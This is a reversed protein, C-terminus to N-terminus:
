STDGSFISDQQAKRTEEISDTGLLVNGVGLVRYAAQRSYSLRFCLAM